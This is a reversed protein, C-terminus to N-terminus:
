VYQIIERSPCFSAQIIKGLMPTLSFFHSAFSNWYYLVCILGCLLVCSCASVTNSSCCHDFPLHFSLSALLTLAKWQFFEYLRTLISLSELVQEFTSHWTCLSYTTCSILLCWLSSSLNRLWCQCLGSVVATLCIGQAVLRRQISSWHFLLTLNELVRRWADLM